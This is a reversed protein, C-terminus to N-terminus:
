CMNEVYAEYWNNETCEPYVDPMDQLKFDNDEGSTAGVIQRRWNTIM